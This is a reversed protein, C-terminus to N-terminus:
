SNMFRASIIKRGKISIETNSVKESADSEKEEKMLDTDGPIFLVAM